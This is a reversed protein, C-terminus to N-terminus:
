AVDDQLGSPAVGSHSIIRLMHSGSQASQSQRIAELMDRTDTGLGLGIGFKLIIQFVSLCLEVLSCVSVM